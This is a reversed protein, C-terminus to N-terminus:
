VHNLKIFDYIIRNINLEKFPASIRIEVLIGALIGLEKLM